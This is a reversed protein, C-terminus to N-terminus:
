KKALAAVADIVANPLQAEIRLYWANPGGFSACKVADKETMIVPRDELGALDEARYDHHDPFSVMEPQFGLQRLTDIFQGPYGIGAVAYVSEGLERTGPALVRGDVLNVLSKPIYTVGDTGASRGRFLAFDVADLRSIPERLPGAPLCFGNGLGLEGDLMALELSRGLAYHQLGDDSIVVDVSFHELLTQVAAVRDPCIVCPAGTRRYILLPEDGCEAPTSDPSVIHPSSRANAGYGRSVVGATFGRTRLAEVLAIVVPTKGTGGVTINGVVIVPRPATYTKFVGWQFLTRRIRVASRYIWELPRLLWLWQAGSMWGDLLFVPVRSM